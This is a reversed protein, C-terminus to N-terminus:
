GFRSSNAPSVDTAEYLDVFREYLFNPWSESSQVRWPGLTLKASPLLVGIRGQEDDISTLRWQRSSPRHELGLFEDFRLECMLAFDENDGTRRVAEITRLTNALDAMLWRINIFPEPQLHDTMFCLSVFSDSRVILQVIDEYYQERRTYGQFRKTWTQSAGGKIPAPAPIESAQARDVTDFPMISTRLPGRGVWLDSREWTRGLKVEGSIPIAGIWYGIMPGHQRSPPRLQMFDAHAFSFAEVKPMPANSRRENAALKDLTKLQYLLDDRLKTHAAKKEETSAGVSLRYITPKRKHQMDFPRDTRWDGFAENFVTIVKEDGLKAIAWGYEICVNPNPLARKASNAVTTVDGIFARAAEIREFITRALDPSGSVGETDQQARLAEETELDANLKKIAADLAKRIFRKNVHEDIDSQWAYFVKGTM